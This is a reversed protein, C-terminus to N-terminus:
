QNLTSAHLRKLADVTIREFGEWPPSGKCTAPEGPQGLHDLVLLAGTFDQHATLDNYTVVTPIGAALASKLGAESDEFALCEHPELRMEELVHLYIDPAPKKHPVIDGGSIVEFVPFGVPGLASALLAFINCPDSTSAIALRLGAFHAGMILQVVGPRPLIGVTNLLILYQNIKYSYLQYIFTDLTEFKGMEPLAPQYHEIYYRIREKGGAVDLLKLYLVEDWYWNLGMAAFTNNYAVRHFNMETEALTGDVDFILAKLLEGEM